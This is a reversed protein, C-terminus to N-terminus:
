PDRDSWSRLLELLDDETNRSPDESVREALYRLARGVVPGPGVNLAEMVERGGLALQTRLLANEGASRIRDLSERLLSLRARVDEAEPDGLMGAELEAERLEFLRALNTDGTRKLLRRLEPEGAPTFHADLPHLALLSEVSRVVHASFRLRVLIKTAATGRLWGALRLPLEPPLRDLMRPTGSRVGPAIAAEIGTRRLLELGAGTRQALLLRSIEQRLRPPALSRISPRVWAMADELEQDPRLSLEAVLRAARLARLPDEALRTRASGVARLRRAELDPVGGQPDFLRPGSDDVPEYAIAHITFDRLALDDELQEGGRFRTVDVPGARTPVMVTANGPAIPVAHHFLALVEEPSASCALQFDRVEAGRLLDRVCPGVLAARHQHSVLLEFLPQLPSPLSLQRFPM